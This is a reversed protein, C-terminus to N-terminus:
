GVFGAVCTNWPSSADQASVCMPFLTLTGVSAPMSAVAGRKPQDSASRESQVIGASVFGPMAPRSAEELAAMADEPEDRCLACVM